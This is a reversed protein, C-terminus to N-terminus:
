LSQVHSAFSAIVIGHIHQNLLIRYWRSYMRRFVVVKWVIAAQLSQEPQAQAFRQCFHVEHFLEMLQGYYRQDRFHRQLIRFICAELLIGDNIAVM